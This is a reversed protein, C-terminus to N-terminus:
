FKQNTSYLEKDDEYLDPILDYMDVGGGQM